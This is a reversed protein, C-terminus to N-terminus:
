FRSLIHQTIVETSFNLAAPCILILFVVANLVYRAKKQGDTTNVFSFQVKSILSYVFFPLFVEWVLILPVFYRSEQSDATLFIVSLLATVSLLYVLFRPPLPSPIEKRLLVFCIGLFVSVLSLTAVHLLPLFYLLVSSYGSGGYHNSVASLLGAVQTIPAFWMFPDFVCFAVFAGAAVIVMKKFDYKTALVLLMAVAMVGGADIRSAAALGALVAWYGLVHMKATGTHEYLYLTLLVLLAISFAAMVSPPTLGFFLSSDMYIPQVSIFALVTLSWLLSKRLMYCLMCILGIMVSNIMILFAILAETYSVKSLAHFLITGEISPGGPHMYADLAPFAHSNGSQVTSAATTWITEDGIPNAVLRVGQFVISVLFAIWFIYKVM